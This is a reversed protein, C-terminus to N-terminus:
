LVNIADVKNANAHTFGGQFAEKLEIYEEPELTLKSIREKYKKKNKYCEKRCYQRVYGTNTLPISLIDGDQEIKEQIYSLLVRIDNECYKLEKETLITKDNRLLSYDLDGAMKKVKYKTLDSATYELKKNSLKLSCRFEIGNTTIAYVPKRADLFFVKSWELRHRIFQWEYPLNHVYIILNTKETGLALKIAALIDIFQKWTRGYTVWNLIGLSWEYMIATKENNAYFSTVEIDFAAPINYVRRKKNNTCIPLDQMSNFLKSIFEDNQIMGQEPNFRLM